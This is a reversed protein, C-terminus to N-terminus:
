ALAAELPARLEPPSVEGLRSRTAGWGARPRAEARGAMDAVARPACRSRKAVLTPGRAGPRRARRLRGGALLPMAFYGHVRKAAPVYAELSHKFDFIRLTRPRDWVLSDFPSLLTTRHRGRTALSALAEPHAWAREGWGEVGVAVLGHRGVVADVQDRRLRHHDALDARPRSAWRAGPRSSSRACAPTTTSSTPSLEPPLAREPLDYVRKWARREACVVSASTWCGSSPSRTRAGTGGSAATAGAASTAATMPGSPALRELVARLDREAVKHWRQGRARFWRRRFAFLPWDEAPLICAAHSWYEFARPPRELLGERGEGAARRGAARLARARALARARLDHRAAGRRAPAADRPRRRPPRRRRAPGPRAAGRSAGRRRQADPGPPGCAACASACTPAQATDGDAKPLRHCAKAGLLLVVGHEHVAHVKKRDVVRLGEDEQIVLADLNSGDGVVVHM